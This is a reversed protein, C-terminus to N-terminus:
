IMFIFSFELFLSLILKNGSDEKSFYFSISYLFMLSTISIIIFEFFYYIAVINYFSVPIFLIVSFIILKIYDIIFHGIWYSWLNCGSLFLLHKINNIREKIKDNIFGSLYIIFGIISSILFIIIFILNTKYNNDKEKIFEIKSLIIANIPQKM